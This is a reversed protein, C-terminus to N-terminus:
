KIRMLHTKTSIHKNFCSETFVGFDCSKCYYKFDKQRDKKTSHNNLKHTLYNNQNYSKYDCKDCKYEIGLKDKRPKKELDLHRKTKCHQHYYYKNDTTYNCKNCEYNNSM